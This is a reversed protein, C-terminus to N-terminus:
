KAIITFCDSNIVKVDLTPLIVLYVGQGHITLGILNTDNPIPLLYRVSGFLAVDTQLWLTTLLDIQFCGYNVLPLFGPGAAMLFPMLSLFPGTTKWEVTEGIRFNAGSGSPKIALKYGASAATLVKFAPCTAVEVTGTMKTVKGEWKTLDVSADPVLYIESCRIQHTATPLCSPAKTLKEVKGTFNFQAPTAPALAALLVFALTYRIM